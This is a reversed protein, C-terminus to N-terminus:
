ETPRHLTPAKEDSSKDDEPHHRHLVPRGDVSTRRENMLNAIWRLEDEPM